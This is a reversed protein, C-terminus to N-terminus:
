NLYQASLVFNNLTVRGGILYSFNAINSTKASLAAWTFISFKNFSFSKNFDMSVQQYKTEYYGGIKIGLLDTRIYGAFNNYELDYALGLDFKGFRVFAGAGYYDFKLGGVRLGDLKETQTKKLRAKM